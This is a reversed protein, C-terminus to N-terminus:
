YRLEKGKVVAPVGKEMWLPLPADKLYYDFFQDMRISLDHRNPFKTLNHEDGNYNLLWSPKGLRRMATILELGQYYPVAGDNDNSMILLPTTIRDVFFIPSNELYLDRNEWLNAGLRSQGQEYQFQRVMGSEWRIGGYASTMNSVPAGAMAAKFLGTQTVLYAVQYGGWSQGQIGMRDADVYPLKTMAMTGSIIDDYASRGPQGTRYNIDPVFVIYGNSNYYTFNV